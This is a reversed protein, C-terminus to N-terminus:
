GGRWEWRGDGVPVLHDVRKALVGYAPSPDIPPAPLPPLIRRGWAHDTIILTDDSVRIERRVRVGDAEMEGAFGGRDWGVCRAVVRDHLEFLTAGRRAVRLEPETHPVAHATASRYRERAEPLATYLYTGPDAIVDVGDISLEIALQDEHAHGALAITGRGGCRIAMWLRESRYVYVGFEAFALLEARDHLGGGSVRIESSARPSGSEDPIGHLSFPASDLPILPLEHGAIIMTSAPRCLAGEGLRNQSLPNPPSPRRRGSWLRDVRIEDSDKAVADTPRGAVMAAVLAAAPERPAPSGGLAEAVATPERPDLVPRPPRIPLFRGSDNDGIQAMLGSPKTLAAAFDAMARIRAAHAPPLAPHARLPPHRPWDRPRADRLAAVKEGPLARILATCWAVMEMGLCHYATSAEFSAGDGTFQLETELGLEQVSWALWADTARGRPLYAACFLLGAVNALYHNGRVERNWELHRILHTAHERVARQFVREFGDDFGVGRAALLDRAALW